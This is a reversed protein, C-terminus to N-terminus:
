QQIEIKLGWNEPSLYEPQQELAQGWVISAQYVARWVHQMLAASTPPLPECHIIKHIFLLKKAGGVTKTSSSKDYLLIIFKELMEINNKELNVQFKSLNVFTQTVEQSVNWTQFFSKKTREELAQFVFLVMM